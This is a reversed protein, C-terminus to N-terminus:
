PMENRAWAKAILPRAAVLEYLRKINAHRAFLQSVDPAWSILMAAYIDVASMSPGLIFPGEGLAEAFIDYDREMDQIAKAKIGDAHSGVTSHRAPYYMRLDAMYVATAFYLMWRLYHSRLPSTVSPALGAAPHLDALYIMMAASETMISNDPLLLSPVEARPNIQQFSRPVTGDPERLVEIIEFAAGCEALLAEVAASGAGPRAYLKFM